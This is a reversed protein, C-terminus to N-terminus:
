KKKDHAHPHYRFYAQRLHDTSTHTYIQTTSLNSHGLMEQVARIDAGNNLLETAFSHRLVHPSIHSLLGTERARETLIYSIGRVTLREGLHNLFLADDGNNRENLYRRVWFSASETLFVIREKSGKGMVKLRNAVMDLDSVKAGAIESVRGGSSFFLELIARDRVDKLSEIKFDCLQDIQSATLYEPLPKGQKPYCLNYAPNDDLFNRNFLFRFFSRICAIKRAVSRKDLGQDMCFEVFARLDNKNISNLDVEDNDLKVNVAYISDEGKETETVLFTHLQELDQSYAKITQESSNKEVILYDLFKDM